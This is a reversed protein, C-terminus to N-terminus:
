TPRLERTCEAAEKEDQGAKVLARVQRAPNGAVLINPPVSSMVVAGAAVVSGHGITVGPMIIANRGVWVNDEIVVPRVEDPRAPQGEMRMVPHLPHGPADFITVGTAIRCHRGITIREGITLSSGHGIGSNDGIILTPRSSYRVAFSISCKGDVTVNDGVIMEGRGQIWHFFVGTHLNKGYRTCYSKFFPECFFVRAIFYYTSRIILFAGVLPVSLVQPAPVSLNQKWRRARRLIRPLWHNSLALTQYLSSMAKNHIM